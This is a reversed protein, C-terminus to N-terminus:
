ELSLTSAHSVGDGADKADETEPLRELVMDYAQFRRRVAVYIEELAPEMQSVRQLVLKSADRVRQADEKLKSMMIATGPNSRREEVVKERRALDTVDRGAFKNTRNYCDESLHKIVDINTRNADCGFEVFDLHKQLAIELEADAEECIQYMAERTPSPLAECLRKQAAQAITLEMLESLCKEYLRRRERTLDARLLHAGKKLIVKTLEHKRKELSDVKKQDGRKKALMLEHRIRNKEPAAEKQCEPALETLMTRWVRDWLDLDSHLDPESVGTKAVMMVLIDYAKRTNFEATEPRFAHLAKLLRAESRDLMGEACDGRTICPLTDIREQLVQMLEERQGPQNGHGYKGKIAKENWKQLIASLDQYGESVEEESELERIKELLDEVKSPRPGRGAAIRKLVDTNMGTEAAAGPGPRFAAIEELSHEPATDVRKAEEEALRDLWSKVNALSDGLDPKSNISDQVVEWPSEPM